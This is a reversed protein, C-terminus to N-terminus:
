GHNPFYLGFSSAGTPVFQVLDPSGDGVCLELETNGDADAITGGEAVDRNVQIFNDSLDFCDDSLAVSAANEGPMAIITGTYSLGWVRCIGIGAVEFDIMDGELISLITNDDTTIVYTFNADSAGTSVFTVQDAVGDEACVYILTDGSTTSVTGGEAVTRIVEIFNDSLDFCDDSLAVVAADDGISATINGSYSLGWVRCTGTGAGDFDQSDGDPLGLIINNEDTIVYTFNGGSAGQSAFNIVDPNDDGPCIIVSTAGDTTSVTGGEPVERVVTIFNESLEFCDDTLTTTAANEGPQATITGLYSLGWVRCTGPPAADFDATNGDAIELIVNDEDTIVYAYLTSAQSTNAFEIVDAMGDGPCTFVSTEGDVTSVTGGDTELRTVAIFNDSLDFCQDTLATGAANDGPMATVNGTYSLGWVRCEGPGAVDFDLMDGDLISLIVNNADTVVFAYSATSTTESEFTLQDANDDNVCVTASTSGDPLAVTGGDVSFRNVTIFNASLHFCDDSLVQMSADEGINVSLSGTYSLGWVRCIGAGAGDFNAANGDVVQLVVNNEDTILYTYPASATSTNEFSLVDDFGDNVCVDIETGGIELAVSGGDVETRTVEIFNDSLDFCGDTLAVAAADDGPSAIINGSFSLGWVRCVGPGAVDFDVMDGDLVSLIINEDDTIVFVYNLTASTEAEFTLEDPLDDGACIAIETEGTTLSVTGGDVLERTITIFNDSLDFCENSLPQTAANDGAAVTLSGSFSLGWVRCIGAGAGEFDQSNGDAIALVINNDDTIVYVYNETATSTNEFSLEDSLGDGVCVTAETQGDTLAVTGGEAVKRLVEIFNSSLDFCGDALPTIAANDGPEAIIQGTYSLGWVRCVGPGAVDFDLMNGDLVALITNQDDTVIFSYNETASSQAEFTLEDPVGDEACVLVSTSGDTLSVSGGDVLERTVTIFNDSLDFCEDSLAQGVASEGTAVSLNGSYSLGWVRCIGAGAGEFDQSSGTALTLVVNNDDTIVYAYNISATSTNTFDLVDSSGDGVCVTIDSSGDALAVTGGEAEIREVTIFNESLDFCGDALDTTAANDGIQALINGTFALGWVRCIGPGATNFDVSNGDPLALINNQDDTVVYAYSAGVTNTMNTFTLVDAEADGACVKAETSGDDLAVTGGDAEGRIVELFTESLEHCNDALTTTTIDDGIEATINGAYALGWVRCTGIGAGEFDQSNGDAFGLINNNEDTIIFVYPLSTSSTNFTVVDPSGDGPCTFVSSAGNESTIQGGDPVTSIVTVFNDTLEYCISALTAETAIQGPTALVEGAFSFAWVRSLGIPADEFDIFNSISVELIVNNEDTILFGFPTANSSTVFDVEDILGDGPCTSIESAGGRIGITQGGICQGALSHSLLCCFSFAVISSLFKTIKM